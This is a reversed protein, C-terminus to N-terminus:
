ASVREHTLGFANQRVCVVRGPAVPSSIASDKALNLIAGSGIRRMPGAPHSHKIHQSSRFLFFSSIGSEANMKQQPTGPRCGIFKTRSARNSIPTQTEQSYSLASTHLFLVPSVLLPRSHESQTFKFPPPPIDYVM